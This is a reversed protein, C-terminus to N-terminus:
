HSQIKRVVSNQKHDYVATSATQMWCLAAAAMPEIDRMERSLKWAFYWEFHRSPSYVRFGNKSTVCSIARVSSSLGTWHSLTSSLAIWAIARTIYCWTPSIRRMFYKRLANRRITIHQHVHNSSFKRSTCHPRCLENLIAINEIRRVGASGRGICPRKDNSDARANQFINLM